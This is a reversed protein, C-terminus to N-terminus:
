RTVAINAGVGPPVAFDTSGMYFVTGAGLSKAMEKSVEANRELQLYKIYTPSLQRNLEAIGAAEAKRVELDAQARITRVEKEKEALEKQVLRDQQAEFLERELRVKAAQQKETEKNADMRALEIEKIKEVISEPLNINSVTLVEIKVPFNKEKIARQLDAKVDNALEGRVEKVQEITYDALNNRLSERVVPMVYKEFIQEPQVFNAGAPVMLQDLILEIQDKNDCNASYTVRLDVIVKMDSKTLVSLAEKVHADQCNVGKLADYLGTYHTGSNLIEDTLLGSGGTYLALGGTRDFMFAKHGPPVDETGCGIATLAFLALLIYSISRKM